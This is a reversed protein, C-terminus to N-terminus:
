AAHTSPNVRKMRFATVLQKRCEQVACREVSGGGGAGWIIGSQFGCSHIQSYASFCRFRNDDHVFVLRIEIPEKSDKKLGIIEGDVENSGFIQGPKLVNKTVGDRDKPTVPKAVCLPAKGGARGSTGV